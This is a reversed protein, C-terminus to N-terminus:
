VVKRGVQEQYGINNVLVAWATRAIKNAIAVAVKNAHKTQKLRKAHEYIHGSKKEALSAVSRGGHTLLTRLYRDGRKSIGLLRQRNGSSHQKPVLGLYAAVHRGHKFLKGDGITGYFCSATMVGVGPITLLRQCAEEQQCIDELVKDYEKVKNDMQVLQDSLDFIMRRALPTLENEANELILPVEKRLKGIGQSVIEGYEQLIGRIRNALETRQEVYGQRIRHASQIDQQKLNKPHVFVMNERSAAECIAEADRADNKHSKLYTKVLQPSILKVQHGQALFRRAWHNASGCAEM